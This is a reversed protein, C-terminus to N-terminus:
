TRYSQKVIRMKKLKKEYIQFGLWVGLFAELAYSISLWWAFAAIQEKGPFDLLLFMGVFLWLALVNGLALSVYYAIKKYHFIGLLFDIVIGTALAPLLKHVGPPGYVPTPIALAAYILAMITFTGFKRVILGGATAIATFFVVTVLFGLGIIGTAAYISNSIVIDMLFLIAGVLALLVLEQTTFRKLM